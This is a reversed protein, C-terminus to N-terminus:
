SCAASDNCIKRFMASLMTREGDKTLRASISEIEMVIESVLSM